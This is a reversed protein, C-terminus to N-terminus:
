MMYQKSENKTAKRATIIRITVNNKDDENFTHSVVILIGSSSIGLTVWRDESVSHLDDYITLAKPDRFVSAALEFSIKHRLKNQKAKQFDWKFNYNVNM